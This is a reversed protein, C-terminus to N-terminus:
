VCGLFQPGSKEQLEVMEEGILLIKFLRWRRIEGASKPTYVIKYANNHHHGFAGLLLFGLWPVLFAWRIESVTGGNRRRNVSNKYLTTRRINGTSKLTYVIQYINNHNHGLAGLLPRTTTWLRSVWEGALTHYSALPEHFRGRKGARRGIQDLGSPRWFLRRARPGDVLTSQRECVLGPRPWTQGPRITSVQGATGESRGEPCSEV